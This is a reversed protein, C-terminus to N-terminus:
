TLTNLAQEVDALLGKVGIGEGVAQEMWLEPYINGLKCIRELHTPLDNQEFFKQIQYNIIHGLPYDPLYLGMEIMHSYISLIGSDTSGFGAAWYKDWLNQSIKLTQKKLSSATCSKSRYLYRWSYMDVLAMSAIECTNLYTDLVNEAKTKANIEAEVGLIKLDKEQFLFAIAETFATNPVGQLLTHDILNMSITQEVTHGLEHMATNFASYDFRGNETRVRLYSKAGRMGAGMAHGASRSPDVHIHDALFKAKEPPFGLSELIAPIKNQFAEVSPYQNAVLGDLTKQDKSNKFGTYWIDYPRLNRQLRKEMVGAVKTLLPSALLETLVQEIKKEPIKRGENFGRKLLTNNKKYYVDVGKEQKAINLWVSYRGNDEEKFSIEKRQEDTVRNKYPNWYYQKSNIVNKPISGKVIHEMVKFIMEQKLLAAENGDGYLSKLEDRLGWHAILRKEEAFLLKDGEDLVRDMFINYDNIYTGAQNYALFAKHSVKAPVRGDYGSTLYVERWKARDLKKYNKMIEEFSMAEFNLLILFPLKLEYFDESLHKFPSFNSLLEDAATFPGEEVDKYRNFANYVELYHGQLKETIVELKDLLGAREKEDTIFHRLCFDQLVEYGGDKKMDWLDIVQSLGTEIFPHDQFQEKMKATLKKKQQHHLRM